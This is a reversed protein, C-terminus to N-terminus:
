LNLVNENNFNILIDLDIFYNVNFEKCRFWLVIFIGIEIMLEYIINELEEIKFFFNIGLIKKKNDINKM